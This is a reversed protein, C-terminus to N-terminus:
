FLLNDIIVFLMYINIDGCGFFRVFFENFSYRVVIFNYFVCCWKVLRVLSLIDCCSLFM